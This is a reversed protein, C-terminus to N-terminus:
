QTRASSAIGCEPCRDPSARLDYGCVPCHGPKRRRRRLFRMVQVGPAVAFCAAVAAWPARLSWWSLQEGGKGASSQYGFSLLRRKLEISKKVPLERGEWRVRGKGYYEPNRRRSEALQEPTSPRGTQISSVVIMAGGGTSHFDLYKEVTTSSGPSEVITWHSRQLHGHFWYSRVWLVGAAACLVLSLITAANILIRLGRRM